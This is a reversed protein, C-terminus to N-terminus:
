SESVAANYLYNEAQELSQLGRSRRLEWPLTHVCVGECNLIQTTQQRHLHMFTTNLFSLGVQCWKFDTKINIFAKSNTIGTTIAIM